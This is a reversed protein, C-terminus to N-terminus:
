GIFNFSGNFAKSKDSYLFSFYIRKKYKNIMINSLNMINHLEDHMFLINV